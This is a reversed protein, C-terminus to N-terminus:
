LITKEDILESWLDYARSSCERCSASRLDARHERVYGRVEKWYSPEDRKNECAPCLPLLARLVAVENAGGEAGSTPSGAATVERQLVIAGTVTGDARRYPVASTVLTKRTGDFRQVEITRDAQAEGSGIVRLAGWEDPEIRKGTDAWFGKYEGQEFRAVSSDDGWIRRGAPNALKVKGESDTIWVGVPLADLVVRLLDQGERDRGEPKKERPEDAFALAGTVEGKPGRIAAVSWRVPRKTEKGKGKGPLTFRKEMEFSPTEGALLPKLLAQEKAADEPNVLSGPDRGVLEQAVCGLLRCLAANARVIRGDPGILAIATPAGEFVSSFAEEPPRAEVRAPEPPAAADPKRPPESGKAAQLDRIVMVAGRIREDEM